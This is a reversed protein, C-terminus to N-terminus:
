PEGCDQGCSCLHLCCQMSFRLCWCDLLVYVLYSLRLCHCPPLRVLLWGSHPASPPTASASATLWSLPCASILRRILVLLLHRRALPHYRRANQGIGRGQEPSCIIIRTSSDISANPEVNSVLKAQGTSSLLVNGGKLDRHILKKGHLYQLGLLVSATVAALQEETLTVDCIAM